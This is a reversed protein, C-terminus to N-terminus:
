FLVAHEWDVALMRHESCDVPVRSTNRGKNIVMLLAMDGNAAYMFFRSIPKTDLVQKSGPGGYSFCLIFM